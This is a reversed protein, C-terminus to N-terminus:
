LDDSFFMTSFNRVIKFVQFCQGSYAVFCSGDHHTLSITDGGKRNIGMHMTDTLADAEQGFASYPRVQGCAVQLKHEIVPALRDRTQM